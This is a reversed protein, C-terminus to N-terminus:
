SSGDAKGKTAKRFRERNVEMRVVEAQRRLAMTLLSKPAVVNFVEGRIQCEAEQHKGRQRTWYANCCMTM